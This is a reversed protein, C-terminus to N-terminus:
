QSVLTNDSGVRVLNLTTFYGQEGIDDVQKNIIYLGSSTHLKGYFYVKLRVKSMLVAPRLLGKLKIVATIPYETVNKWWNEDEARMLGQGNNSGILPSYVDIIEGNDDIREIYENPNLNKSYNYFISYAENNNITFSTVVNNSPYGIDLEYTDLSDSSSSSNMVKFYPGNYEGTTDDIVKFVYMGKSTSSRKMSSVLYRLYDLISMNIQADLNVIIDDSAILGKQEVFDMDRMGPFIDQLGYKANNRLMEKIVDSPKARRAKFNCAGATALKSSSVATVNYQIVASNIDFNEQVDTIIAEENKYLFTPASLDGYSFIIKRSQSVKSFVKEFFNPDNTPTIAYKLVLTYTNVQGNIKAVQLSQVYNPYQINNIRYVGNSDRQTSTYQGFVGFDYDGIKVKIFPTQVRIPNDLLSISAM